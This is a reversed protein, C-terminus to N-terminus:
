PIVFVCGAHLVLLLLLEPHAGRRGNCSGSHRLQLSCHGAATGSQGVAVDSDTLGLAAPM